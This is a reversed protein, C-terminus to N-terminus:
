SSMFRERKKKDKRDAKDKSVYICPRQKGGDSRSKADCTGLARQCLSCLLLLAVSHLPYVCGVCSHNLNLCLLQLKTALSGKLQSIFEVSGCFEMTFKM